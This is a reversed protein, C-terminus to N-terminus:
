HCKLTALKARLNIRIIYIYIYVIFVHMRMVFSTSSLPVFFIILKNDLRWHSGVTKSLRPKRASKFNSLQHKKKTHARLSARAYRGM